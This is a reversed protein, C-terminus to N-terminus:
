GRRVEHRRDSDHRRALPRSPLLVSARPTPARSATRSCGFAAIAHMAPGARGVADDHCASDSRVRAPCCAAACRRVDRAPMAGPIGADVAGITQMPTGFPLSSEAARDRRAVAEEGLQRLLGGAEREVLRDIHIEAVASPLSTSAPAMCRTSVRLCGPKMTIAASCPRLRARAAALGRAPARRHSALSWLRDQRVVVPRPDQQARLPDRERPHLPEAVDVLDVAEDAGADRQRAPRLEAATRM